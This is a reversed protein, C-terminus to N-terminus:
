TSKNKSVLKSKDNPRSSFALEDTPNTSFGFINRLAVKKKWLCWGTTRLATLPKKWKGLNEASVVWEKRFAELKKWLKEHGTLIRVYSFEWWELFTLLIVLTLTIGYM